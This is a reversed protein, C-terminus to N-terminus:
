YISFHLDVSIWSM